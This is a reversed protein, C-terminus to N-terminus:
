NKSVKRRVGFLGLLAAGLLALSGPEPVTTPILFFDADTAPGCIAPTGGVSCQAFGGVGLNQWVGENGDGLGGRLAGNAIGLQNQQLGTIPDFTPVLDAYQFNTNNYLFDMGGTYNAFTISVPLTALFDNPSGVAGPLGPTITVTLFTDGAQGLGAVLRLIGEGTILDIEDKMSAGAGDDILDASFPTSRDYVAFMGGTANPDGTLDQLTLGPVTTTGLSVIRGDPSAGTIQNSIVAYVENNANIGRPLFNDIRVFGILVDGVSILGNGDVDVYAERDQDEVTNIVGPILGENITAAWASTALGLSLAVAAGITRVASPVSQKFRNM